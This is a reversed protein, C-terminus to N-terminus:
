LKYRDEGPPTGEPDETIRTIRVQADQRIQVGTTYSSGGIFIGVTGLTLDRFTLMDIAGMLLLSTHVMGAGLTMLFREDGDIADLTEKLWSVIRNAM